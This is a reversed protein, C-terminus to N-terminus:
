KFKAHHIKINDTFGAGYWSTENDKTQNVNLETGEENKKTHGNSCTPASDKFDCDDFRLRKQPVNPQNQVTCM